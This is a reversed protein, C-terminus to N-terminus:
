IKTPELSQVFWRSGSKTLNYKVKYSETTQDFAKGTVTDEYHYDWTETTFATATKKRKVVKDIALSRLEIILRRQKQTQDDTMYLRVKTVQDDGAVSELLSPKDQAYAKILLQDYRKVTRGVDDAAGTIVAQRQGRKFYVRVYDEGLALGMFLTVAVLIMLLLRKFSSSKAM